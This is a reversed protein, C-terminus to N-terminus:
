LLGNVVPQGGEESILLVMRPVALVRFPGKDGYRLLEGRDVREIKSGDWPLIRVADGDVIRGGSRVVVELEQGPWAYSWTPVGGRPDLGQLRDGFHIVAGHATPHVGHVPPDVVGYWALRRVTDPVAPVEGAEVSHHQQPLSWAMAAGVVLASSFSLPLDRM